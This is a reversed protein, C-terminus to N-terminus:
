MSIINTYVFFLEYKLNVSKFKLTIRSLFLKLLQTTKIIANNKPRFVSVSECVSLHSSSHETLMASHGKGQYRTHFVGIRSSCAVPAQNICVEVILAM